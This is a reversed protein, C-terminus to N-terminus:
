ANAWDVAMEGKAVAEANRSVDEPTADRLTSKPAAPTAGGFRDVAGRPPSFLHPATSKVTKLFGDLTVPAQGEAIAAISDDEQLELGAARVRAAVDPIAAAQFGATTIADNAIRNFKETRRLKREKDLEQELKELRAAETAPPKAKRAEALQRKLEAVEAADDTPPKPAVDETDLKFGDGDAVYLAKLADDLEAHQDKTIKLKLAM